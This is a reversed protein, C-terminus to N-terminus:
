LEGLRADNTPARLWDGIDKALAKGVRGLLSCTGKYGGWAGGTTTRRARFTGVVAGGETLTGVVTMQKPGSWMGGGAGMMAVIEIDLVRGADTPASPTAGPAYEALWQPIQTDLGCEAKVAEPVDAEAGYRIPPVATAAVPAGANAGPAESGQSNSKCAPLAALSVAIAVDFLRRRITMTGSSVVRGLDRGRDAFSTRLHRTHYRLDTTLDDPM